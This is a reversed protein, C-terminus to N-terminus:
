HPYPQPSLPNTILLAGVQCAEQFLEAIDADADPGYERYKKKARVEAAKRILRTEHSKDAERLWCCCLVMGVALLSMAISFIVVGTM